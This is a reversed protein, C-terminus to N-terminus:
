PEIVEKRNPDYLRGDVWPIPALPGTDRVLGFVIHSGPRGNLRAQLRRVYGAQELRAVYQKVNDAKIAAM